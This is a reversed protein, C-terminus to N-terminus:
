IDAPLTEPVNAQDKGKEWIHQMRYLIERAARTTGYKGDTNEVVMSYLSPANKSYYYSNLTGNLFPQPISYEAMKNQALALQYTSASLEDKISEIYEDAGKYVPLNDCEKLSGNQAEKTTLYRILSQEATYKKGDSYSNIMFVKCDNFTGGRMVTGAKATTGEVDADTLTYTPIMAIGVNTAGIASAFAKYKWSGSIISIVGKNQLDIEWGSSSAWTFGNKEAYFRRIWQLNAVSDEGQAWCNGKEGNEYIKMSTEHTENDQALITFSFNFGDQGTVTLAKVELKDTSAAKAAQQLGEFTKAQDESVYRKDYMLFLSQGIYPAGYLARQDDVVSYSVNVFNEPNDAKIQAYLANDIFPKVLKEQALKGINDHAATFIDACVSADNELDGAVGGSDHGEIAVTMKFEANKAKHEAVWENALKKYYEVSETGVWVKIEGEGAFDEPMDYTAIDNYKQESSGGDGGGGNGGGCASLALSAVFVPLTLFLKKTKM